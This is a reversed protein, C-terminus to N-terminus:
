RKKGEGNYIMAEEFCGEVTDEYEKEVILEPTLWMKKHVVDGVLTGTTLYSKSKQGIQGMVSRVLYVAEADDINIEELHSRFQLALRALTLDESYCIDKIELWSNYDSFYVDRGNSLEVNIFVEKEGAGRIAKKFEQKGEIM